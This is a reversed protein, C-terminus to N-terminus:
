LTHRECLIMREVAAHQEDSTSRKGGGDFSEVDNEHNASMNSSIMRVNVPGDNGSTDLYQM